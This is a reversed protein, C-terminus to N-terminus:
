KSAGPPAPLVPPLTGTGTQVPPTLGAAKDPWASVLAVTGQLEGADRTRLQWQVARPLAGPKALPPPWADLWRQTAADLYHLRLEVVHVKSDAILPASNSTRDLVAYRGRKLTGGDVTYFVRQLNSRPEARPNAYGLHTFELHDSGGALAPLVQGAAGLVPRAVIGRLDRDLGGVARILDGFDQQRAALESRTHAISNLGGYALAAVVAFVALAVLLEILSFGRARKM